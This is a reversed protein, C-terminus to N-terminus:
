TALDHKQLDHQAVNSPPGNEGHKKWVGMEARSTSREGGGDGGGGGGPM